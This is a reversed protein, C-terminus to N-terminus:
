ELHVQVLDRDPTSYTLREDHSGLGVADAAFATIRHKVAANVNAELGTKRVATSIVSEEVAVNPAKPRVESTRTRRDKRFRRANNETHQRNTRLPRIGAARQTRMWIGTM